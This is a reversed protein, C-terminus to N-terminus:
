GFSKKGPYYPQIRNVAVGLSSLRPDWNPPYGTAATPRVVVPPPPPLTAYPLVHEVGDVLVTATDGNIKLITVNNAGTIAPPLTPPAAPPLPPPNNNAAPVVTYAPTPLSTPTPFPTITPTPTATPPVPESGTFLQIEGPSIQISCLAMITLIILIPIGIQLALKLYKM